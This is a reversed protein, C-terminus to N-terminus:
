RGRRATSKPRRRDDVTASRGLPFGSSVWILNKRNQVGSLHRGISELADITGVARLGQYHKRCRPGPSERTETMESGFLDALEADLRAADAEGALVASTNGRLSAVARVLSAADSTFDHVVRLMGDGGLVYLGVRDDPRIQELFRGVHERVSMRVADSSNLQDYLIITVSGTDPM